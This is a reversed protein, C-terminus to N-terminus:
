HCPPIVVVVTIQVDQEGTIRARLIDRAHVGVVRPAEVIDDRDISPLSDDSVFSELSDIWESTVYLGLSPQDVAVLDYRGSGSMFDMKHAQVMPAFELLNAEVTIGTTEEFDSEHLLELATQTSIDQLACITIKVDEAAGNSATILSCCLVVAFMSLLSKKFM